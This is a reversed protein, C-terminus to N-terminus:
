RMKTEYFQLVRLFTPTFLRAGSDRLAHIQQLSLFELEEIHEKDPNFPGDYLGAFIGIFKQCGDDIMSIKGIFELNLNHVGLEQTLRREAAERYSEGAFLYAAVSSGWYGPHRPRRRALKQILLEGSSNFILDHAVRFNAHRQFLDSRAIVGVPVDSSNVSDVLMEQSVSTMISTLYLQRYKLFDFINSSHM